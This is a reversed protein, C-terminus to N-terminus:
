PAPPWPIAFEWCVRQWTTGGLMGSALVRREEPTRHPLSASLMEKSIQENAENLWFDSLALGDPGDTGEVILLGLVLRGDRVEFAADTHRLLQSRCAMWTTKSTCSWETRKGEVVLLTHATQICADPCSEGELIYWARQDSGERIGILAASITAPDHRALLLRKARVTGADKSGEVADETVNQVLWELLRAPPRLRREHKGWWRPHGAELDGVNQPLAIESARSGLQLLRLLWSRGTPDSDVLWDFVPQVRTLSSNYQGM